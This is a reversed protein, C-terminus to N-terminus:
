AALKKIIEICRVIVQRKLWGLDKRKAIESLFIDKSKDFGEPKLESNTSRIIRFRNLNICNFIEQSFPKNTGCLPCTICTTGAFVGRSGAQSRYAARLKSVISRLEKFYLVIIVLLMITFSSLAVFGFRKEFKDIEAASIALYIEGIKTGAYTADSSFNVIRKYDSSNGEWFSVQDVTRARENMTSMILEVNTYAIINNKHDIIAAYVIDSNGAAESLLASLTPMDLELLPLGARSSFVGAMKVGSQNISKRVLSIKISTIMYFVAICIWWVVLCLILRNRNKQLLKM